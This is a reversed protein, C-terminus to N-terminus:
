EWKRRPTAVRRTGRTARKAPGAGLDGSIRQIGLADASFFTLKLLCFITECVFFDDAKKDALITKPFDRKKLLCSFRRRKKFFFCSLMYSRNTQQGTKLLVTKTRLFPWPDVPDHALGCPLLCAPQHALCAPLNPCMRPNNTPGQM